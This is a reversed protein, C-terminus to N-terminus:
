LQENFDKQYLKVLDKDMNMWRKFDKMELVMIDLCEEIQTDSYGLKSLHEILDSLTYNRTLVMQTNKLRTM